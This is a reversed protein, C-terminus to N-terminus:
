GNFRDQTGFEVPRGTPDVDNCDCVAIANNGRCLIDATVVREVPDDTM